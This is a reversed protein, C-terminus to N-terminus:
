PRLPNFSSSGLNVLEHAIIDELIWRWTQKILRGDALDSSRFHTEGAYPTRCYAICGLYSKRPYSKRSGKCVNTATIAYRHSQTYLDLRVRKAGDEETDFVADFKDSLGRDAVLSAWKVVDNVNAM